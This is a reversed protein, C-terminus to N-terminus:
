DKGLDGIRSSNLNVARCLGVLETQDFSTMPRWLKAALEETLETIPDDPRSSVVISTVCAALLAPYFTDGDVDLAVPRPDRGELEAIRAEATEAAAIQADTPPHEAELLAVAQAGIPAATWTVTVMESRLKKVKRWAAQAAKHAQPGAKPRDAAEQAKEAVRQAENLRNADAPDLAFTADATAVPRNLLLDLTSQEAM